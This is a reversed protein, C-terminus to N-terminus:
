SAGLKVGFEGLEGIALRAFFPVERALEERIATAQILGRRGLLNLFIQGDTRGMSGPKVAWHIQQALNAHNVFCGDKEAFTAAPLVFRAARSIPSPALDQVVLLDIKSLASVQEDKLWPGLRPSYAATLHLAKLNAADAFLREFDLV